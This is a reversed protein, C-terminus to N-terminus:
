YFRTKSITENLSKIHNNIITNDSINEPLKQKLIFDDLQSQLHRNKQKAELLQHRLDEDYNATAKSSVSNDYDNTIPVQAPQKLFTNSISGENQKLTNIKNSFQVQVPDTAINEMETRMQKIIQKLKENEEKLKFEASEFDIAKLKFFIYICYFL